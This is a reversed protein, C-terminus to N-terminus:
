HSLPFQKSHLDRAARILTGDGGLVLICETDGPVEPSETALVCQKGQQEIYQKIRYTIELTKDKKENTIVYFQNM